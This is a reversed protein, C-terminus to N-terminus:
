AAGFLLEVYRRLHDISRRALAPDDAAKALIFAGQLVGQIHQALSEATWDPRLGRAEMAAAIDPELTRAHGLISDRAAERIAPSSQFVEQTMTGALCSFAAPDGSVLGKRFDIYALVRDLPDKPEHYAATEFLAGTKETWYEAVAVGLAEKSRFHHFYAGKTVGAARCLDEVSTGTFGRQRILDVAAELLRTRADGREPDTKTPRPM